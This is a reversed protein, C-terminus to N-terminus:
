KLITSEATAVRLSGTQCRFRILCAHDKIRQKSIWGALIMSAEFHAIFQTLIYNAIHKIYFETCMPRLYTFSLKENIFIFLYIFTEM